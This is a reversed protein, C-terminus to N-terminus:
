KLLLMKKISQFEGGASIRYFYVGSSLSQGNNNTADWQIVYRGATQYDNVLTNVVQGLMNYIELTVEGAEPLQYKITTEPNFPNPYNNQLAYVDPRTEIRVSTPATIQNMGYSGDQIAGSAIEIYSDEIESKARFILDLGLNGESSAVDGFAAVYVEGEGRAITQPTALETEGLINDQVQTGVFELLESDYSVTLGYAKVEVFEELSVAITMDEGIRPLATGADLYFSADSNLGAMTPVVKGAVQIVKGFNEAFVFFDDYDVRNNQSLDFAPEFAEQGAALGFHDAFIFFDDYGVRNDAGFLGYVPTGDAAVANNRIAMASNELETASENDTDYPSVSYTYRVGNFVTQDAFSTEGTSAKGVLQYAGDNVKRYVNYGAVGATQFVNNPGVAPSNVVTLIQDDASKAWQVTVSGGFDNPTDIAQLYAVAQPAINDIARVAEATRRAHSLLVGDVVKFRPAVGTEGFALAEPSLAAFVPATLDLQAVARSNQMAEAMLEYPAAVTTAADFAVKSSLGGREAAVSYKSMVGDLTAVIARAVTQGPVADVRAWAISQTDPAALAVLGGAGDSGVTVVVDRYIRYGTLTGHDASVPWTLLVFGGQDGNGDAGMYDQGVLTDPGALVTGGDNSVNVTKTGEKSGGTIQRATLTLDGAYGNSNVWFGGTGKSIQIANSPFDVGIANTSIEVFATTLTNNGFKDAMTVTVWTADGQGITDTATILNIKNLAAASVVITNDLGGVFLNSADTCDSIAVTVSDISTTDRISVSRTGTVWDDQNLLFRGAVTSDVTVGTGWVTLGSAGSIRLVADQKYTVAVCDTTTRATLTLAVTDGAAPTLTDSAITFKAIVPVVFSTDYVFSDAATRNYNGSLDAALITLGYKLGSQLSDVTFTQETLTTLESGVLARTRTTGSSPTYTILVSDAAESLKFTVKATEEELTDLANETTPFLRDFNIEDVDVYVNTRTLAPGWNGALDRGQFSISQSGTKITGGVNTSDYTAAAGTTGTVRIAVTGSDATNANSFNILNSDSAADLAGHTLTSDQNAILLTGASVGSFIIRLSDLREALEVTLPNLDSTFGSNVNGDTITDTSVPLITDGDVVGGDLVPAKGDVFFRVPVTVGTAVESTTGCDHAAPFCHGSLNGAADAIYVRITDTRDNAVDAGVLDGFDGAAIIHAFNITDNSASKPVTMLSGFVDAKVTLTSSSTLVAAAQGGLKVDVKITDGIGLIAGRATRNTFASFTRNQTSKEGAVGSSDTVMADPRSPRDGDVGFTLSAASLKTATSLANGTSDFSAAAVRIGSVTGSTASVKGYWTYTFNNGSNSVTISDGDGFHQHASDARTIAAAIFNGNTVTAGATNLVLAANAADRVLSDLTVGMLATDTSDATADLVVTSDNGVFLYFIVGDTTSSTFDEVVATAVFTSDIGRVAGSDTPATVTVSTVISQADATIVGFGVLAAAFLAICKRYQM